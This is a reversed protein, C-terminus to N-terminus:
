TKQLNKNLNNLKIITLKERRLNSLIGSFSKVKFLKKNVFYYQILYRLSTLMQCKINGLYDRLLKICLNLAM